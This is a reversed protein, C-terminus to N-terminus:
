DAGKMWNKKTRKNFCLGMFGTKSCQQSYTIGNDM